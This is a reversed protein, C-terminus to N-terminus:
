IRIKKEARCLQDFGYVFIDIGGSIGVSSFVLFMSEDFRKIFYLNLLIIRRRKSVSCFCIARKM